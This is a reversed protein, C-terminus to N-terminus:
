RVIEASARTPEMRSAWDASEMSAAAEPRSDNQTRARSGADLKTESVRAGFSSGRRMLFGSAAGIMLGAGLWVPRPVSEFSTLLRDLQRAPWGMEDVKLPDRKRRKNSKAM